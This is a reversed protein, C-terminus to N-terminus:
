SLCFLIRQVLSQVNIEDTIVIISLLISDTRNGVYKALMDPTTGEM